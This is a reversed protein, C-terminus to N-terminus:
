SLVSGYYSNLANSVGIKVHAHLSPIDKTVQVDVIAFREVVGDGFNSEWQFDTRMRVTAKAQIRKKFKAM